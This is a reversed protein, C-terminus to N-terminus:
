FSSLLDIVAELGCHNCGTKSQFEDTETEQGWSLLHNHYHEVANADDTCVAIASDGEGKWYKAEELIMAPIIIINPSAYYHVEQGKFCIQNLPSHKLGLGQEGEVNHNEKEQQLGLHACGSHSTV